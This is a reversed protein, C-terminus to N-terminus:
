VTAFWHLLDRVKIFGTHGEEEDTRTAKLYEFSGTPSVAVDLEYEGKEWEFQLGGRRDPAIRPVSVELSGAGAILSVRRPLCQHNTTERGM